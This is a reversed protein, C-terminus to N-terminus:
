IRRDDIPAPSQLSSGPSEDGELLVVRSGDRRWEIGFQRRLQQLAGDVDDVRLTASFRLMRLQESAIVFRTDSYRELEHLVDEIPEQKFVLLGRQWCTRMELEDAQLDWASQWGNGLIGGEAAHFTHAGYNVRARLLAPTLSSRSRSETANVQGEIVTLEVRDAELRRVNFRAGGAEVDFQRPGASVIFPRLEDFKADIMAEGRLVTINRSRPVYSLLVQTATNLVISGGDPLPIRKREGVGTVLTAEARRPNMHADSGPLVKSVAVVVTALGIGSISMLIALVMRGYHREVKDAFTEVPVLEGLVALIEPGHWRKCRDVILERHVSSKLWLRLANGEEPTITRELKELWMSAEEAADALHQQPEPM